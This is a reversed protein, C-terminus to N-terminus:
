LAIIKQCTQAILLQTRSVQDINGQALYYRNLRFLNELKAKLQKYTM